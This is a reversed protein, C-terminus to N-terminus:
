SYLWGLTTVSELRYVLFDPEYLTFLRPGRLWGPALSPLSGPESELAREGAWM